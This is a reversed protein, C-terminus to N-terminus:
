EDLNNLAKDVLVDARSWRFQLRQDVSPTKVDCAAKYCKLWINYAVIYENMANEAPVGVTNICPYSLRKVPVGTHAVEVRTLATEYEKFNM